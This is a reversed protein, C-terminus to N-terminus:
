QIKVIKETKVKGDKEVTFFYVGAPLHELLLTEDPSTIKQTHVIVGAANIICLNTEGAEGIKGTEGAEM